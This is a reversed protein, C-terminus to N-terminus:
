AREPAREAAHETAKLQPPPQRPEGSGMGVAIAMILMAAATLVWPLFDSDHREHM